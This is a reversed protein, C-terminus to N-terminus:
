CACLAACREASPASGNTGEEHAHRKSSAGRAQLQMYRSPISVQLILPLALDGRRPHTGEMAARVLRWDVVVTTVGLLLPLASFSSCSPPDHDGRRIKRFNLKALWASNLLTRLSVKLM